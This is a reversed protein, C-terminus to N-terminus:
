EDRRVEGSFLPREVLHVHGAGAGHQVVGAVIHVFVFFDELWLGIGGVFLVVFEDFKESVDLKAQFSPVGSWEFLLKPHILKQFSGGDHQEGAAEVLEGAPVRVVVIEISM